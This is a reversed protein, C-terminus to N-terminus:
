QMSNSIVWLNDQVTFGERFYLGAAKFNECFVTLCVVHQINESSSVNSRELQLKMALRLLAKALGKGRYEAFVFLDSIYLRALSDKESFLLTVYAVTDGQNETVIWVSEHQLINVREPYHQSYWSRGDGFHFTPPLDPAPSSHKVDLQMAYLQSIDAKGSAILPTLIPHTTLSKQFANISWSPNETHMKLITSLDSYDDKDLFLMAGRDPNIFHMPSDNIFKTLNSRHSFHQAVLDIMRTVIRHSVLPTLYRSLAGRRLESCGIM